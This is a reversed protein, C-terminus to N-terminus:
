SNEENNTNEAPKAASGTINAPVRLKDSEPSSDKPYRLEERAENPSIIGGNALTSIYAAQVNLEPRLAMAESADVNIDYGFFREFASVTLSALPLITEVWMLKQNPTINANNGGSLLVPPVGLAQLIAEDIAKISDEFGLESFKNDSLSALKMGGDLIMPRRGGVRPNYERTWNEILRDKIKPGLISESYMVLGPVANNKFFNDQFALMQARSNAIELCSELRTSGRFISSVGNDNIPIVEDSQMEVRNDFIYHSVFGIPDPVVIVKSSPLHHLHVGDWYLYANGELVLDLYLLRKLRLIDQHLNPTFNLLKELKPQAIKTSGIKGLIDYRISACDNVIMDVGRRVVPVGRYLELASRYARYNSAADGSDVIVRQAPSFKNRIWNLM